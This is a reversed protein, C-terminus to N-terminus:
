SVNRFLICYNSFGNNSFYGFEVGDEVAKSIKEILDFEVISDCHLFLVVDGTSEKYGSNMQLARGKESSIYKLNINDSIKEIYSKSKDDNSSDVFIVEYVDELYMLNDIIKKVNEFENYIPIVISINKSM